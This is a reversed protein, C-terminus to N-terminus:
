KNDIYKNIRNRKYGYHTLSSHIKIVCCKKWYGRGFTLSNGTNMLSVRDIFRSQFDVFASMIWTITQYAPDDRSKISMAYKSNIVFAWM